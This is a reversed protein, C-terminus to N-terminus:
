ASSAIQGARAQAQDVPLGASAGPTEEIVQQSVGRDSWRGDASICAFYLRVDLSGSRHSGATSINSKAYLRCRLSKFQAEDGQGILAVIQDQQGLREVRGPKPREELGQGRHRKAGLNFGQAAIVCRM